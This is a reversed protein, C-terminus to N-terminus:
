RKELSASLLDREAYWGALEALLPHDLSRKLYGQLRPIHALYAPKGDREDLRVFIGIIKTVRQASLIAYCARFADEDFGGAARRAACYRDLLSSEMAPPIDVRADQALSAVDYATSGILADQFDILGVRDTGEATEDWIINPSHFDRLVLTKQSADVRDFLETWLRVFRQREATELPAGAVRPAYWDIFLETEILFADLDFPPVVHEAGPVSIRDPWSRAHMAALVDIAAEYRAAVPSGTGDLVGDAGLDELLVVGADLDCAYIEPARMGNEHLVRAIAVFPVVDEALHAIRSYPLGNRIPPGDPRRPADMLVARAGDVGGIREYTRASADGLLFSRAAHRWGHQDLFYRIAHSRDFRDIFPSPAELTVNRADHDHDEGLRVRVANRPLREAAREPWEVLAVGRELAEALGLEDLEEPDAIRYLDFHAIPLRLDYNQVLTFTPSPVELRNQLDGAVARIAARAFTTKGAGLDGQLLVCDGPRLAFAFDAAFERLRSESDLRFEREARIQGEPM